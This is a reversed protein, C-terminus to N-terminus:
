SLLIGASVTVVCNEHFFKPVGDVIRGSKYLVILVSSLLCAVIKRIM